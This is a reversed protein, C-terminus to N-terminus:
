CPPTQLKSCVSVALPLMAVMEEEQVLDVQGGLGGLVVMEGLVVMVEVAQYLITDMIDLQVMAGVEVLVVLEGMGEVGVMGM